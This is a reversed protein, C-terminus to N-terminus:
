ILVVREKEQKKHGLNIALPISVEKEKGKFTMSIMILVNNPKYVVSMAAKEINKLLEPKINLNESAQIIELRAVYGDSTIDIIFDGIEVAGASAKGRWLSLIDLEKEYKIETNIKAM